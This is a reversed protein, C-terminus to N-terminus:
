PAVEIEQREMLLMWQQMEMSLSQESRLVLARFRFDIDDFPKQHLGDAQRTKAESVLAELTGKQTSLIRKEHEYVRSRGRFNYMARISLCAIGFPPLAIALVDIVVNWGLAPHPGESGLPLIQYIHFGAAAIAALLAGTLFRSWLQENEKCDRLENGFWLFQKGIRYYLYSEMREVCDGRGPLRGASAHLMDLWTVEYSSQLPILESLTHGDAAEFQGRRQLVEQIAESNDKGLYPGVGGLLLYQERRLLEIRLRNEIWEATPERNTLAFYILIVLCSVESGILGLAWGGGNPLALIQLSLLFLALPPLIATLIGNAFYRGQAEVIGESYTWQAEHLTSAGVYEETKKVGSPIELKAAPAAKRRQERRRFSAKRLGFYAKRSWWLLCLTLFVPSVVQLWPTGVHIALWLFVGAIVVSASDCLLAM